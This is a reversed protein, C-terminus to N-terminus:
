SARRDCAHQGDGRLLLFARNSAHEVAVFVHHGATLSVGELSPPLDPGQVVAGEDRKVDVEVVVGAPRVVHAPGDHIPTSRVDFVAVLDGIHMHAAVQALGVRVAVSRESSETTWLGHEDCFRVHIGDGFSEPDVDVLQTQLVHVLLSIVRREQLQDVLVPMHRQQHGLQFLSTVKLITLRRNFRVILLVLPLLAAHCQDRRFESDTKGSCVVQILGTGGDLDKGIAANKQVM